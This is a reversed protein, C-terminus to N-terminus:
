SELVGIAKFIWMFFMNCAFLFSSLLVVSVIVVKTSRVIEKRTSWRVKKMEGETAIFFDNARRHLGTVWYILGGMLGLWAVSAVYQVYLASASDSVLNQMQSHVFFAGSVALVGIGIATGLRTYYGQGPKYLKLAM